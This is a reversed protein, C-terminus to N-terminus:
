ESWFSLFFEQHFVEYRKVVAVTIDCLDNATTCTLRCTRLTDEGRHVNILFTEAGVEGTCECYYNTQPSKEKIHKNTSTPLKIIGPM